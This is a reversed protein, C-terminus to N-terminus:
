LCYLATNNVTFCLILFYQQLLICYLATHKMTFCLILCYQECYVVTYPLITWLLVFYLSTNNCYFATYPLINWLLVYYLVINNVTYWLILCFQECYVVTYPLIKWLLVHCQLITPLIVRFTLREWLMVNNNRTWVVTSIVVNRPVSRLPRHLCVFYPPFIYACSWNWKRAM